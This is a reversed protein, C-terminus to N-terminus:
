SLGQMKLMESAISKSLGIGGRAVISKAMADNLFSKFAKEGEGGSFPAEAETGVSMEGIMSSLFSAEFAKATKDIQARKEPSASPLASPPAYATSSSASMAQDM